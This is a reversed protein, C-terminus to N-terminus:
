SPANTNYRYECRLLTSFVINQLFITGKMIVNNQEFEINKFFHLVYHIVHRISIELFLFSTMITEDVDLDWNNIKSFWQKKVFRLM